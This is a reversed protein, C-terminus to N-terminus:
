QKIEPQSRVCSVAINAQRTAVYCVNGNKKDIFSEVYSYDLEFSPLVQIDSPAVQKTVTAKARPETENCSCMMAIFAVLAIKFKM